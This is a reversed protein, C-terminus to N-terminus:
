LSLEFLFGETSTSKIYTGPLLRSAVEEALKLLPGRCPWGTELELGGRKSMLHAALLGGVVLRPFISIKVIAKKLSGHCM